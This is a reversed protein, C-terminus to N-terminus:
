TAAPVRNNVWATFDSGCKTYVGAANKHSMGNVCMLKGVDITPWRYQKASGTRSSWGADFVQYVLPGDDEGNLQGEVFYHRRNASQKAWSPPRLEWVFEREMPGVAVLDAFGSGSCVPQAITKAPLSTDIFCWGPPGTYRDGPWTPASRDDLSFTLNNGGSLGISKMQSGLSSSSSSNTSKLLSTWTSANAPVWDAYSSITAAGPFPSWPTGAAAGCPQTPSLPIKCSGPNFQALNRM